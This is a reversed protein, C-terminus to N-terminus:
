ELNQGTVVALAEARDERLNQSPARRSRNYRRVKTLDALAVSRLSGLGHADRHAPCIESAFIPLSARSFM